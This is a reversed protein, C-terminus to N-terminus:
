KKRYCTKRIKAVFYIHMMLIFVCFTKYLKPFIKLIFVKKVTDGLATNLVWDLRHHLKKAFM